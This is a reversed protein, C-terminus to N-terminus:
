IPPSLIIMGIIVPHFFFLYFPMSNPNKLTSDEAWVFVSVMINQLVEQVLVVRHTSTSSRLNLMNSQVTWKSGVLIQIGFLGSLLRILRISLRISRHPMIIPGCHWTVTEIQIICNICFKIFNQEFSFRIIKAAFNNGIRFLLNSSKSKLTELCSGIRINRSSKPSM